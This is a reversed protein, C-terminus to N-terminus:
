RTLTRFLPVLIFGGTPPHGYEHEYLPHINDIMIVMVVFLLALFMASFALIAAIIRISLHQNRTLHAALICAGVPLVFFSIAAAISSADGRYARYAALAALM